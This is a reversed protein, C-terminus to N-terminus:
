AVLWIAGTLVMVTLAAGLMLGYNALLLRNGESLATGVSMEVSIGPQEDLASGKLGDTANAERRIM